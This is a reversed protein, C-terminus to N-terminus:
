GEDGDSITGPSSQKPRAAEDSTNVAVLVVQEVITRIELLSILHPPPSYHPNLATAADRAVVIKTSLQVTRAYAKITRRSNRDAKINNRVVAPQHGIAGM